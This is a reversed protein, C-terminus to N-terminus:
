EIEKDEHSDQYKEEEKFENWSIEDIKGRAGIQNDRDINEIREEVEMKHDEWIGIEESYEIGEEISNLLNYKKLLEEIDNLLEKLEAKNLEDKYSAIKKKLESIQGKIFFVDRAYEKDEQKSMYNRSNRNERNEEM